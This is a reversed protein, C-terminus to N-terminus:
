IINNIVKIFDVSERNMAVPIHSRSKFAELIFHLLIFVPPSCADGLM